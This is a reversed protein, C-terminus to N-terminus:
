SNKPGSSRFHQWCRSFRWTKCKSILKLSSFRLCECFDFNRSLKQVLFWGVEKPTEKRKCKTIKKAERKWAVLQQLLHLFVASMFLFVEKSRLNSVTDKLILVVEFFIFNENVRNEYFWTYMYIFFSHFTTLPSARYNQKYKVPDRLLWCYWERGWVRLTPEPFSRMFFLSVKAIKIDRRMSMIIVACSVCSACSRAHQFLWQAHVRHM